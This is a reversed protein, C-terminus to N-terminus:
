GVEVIYIEGNTYTGSTGTFKYVKGVNDSTLVAEMGADTSIEIPTSDMYTGTVGFISTGSKINGAVLNPDGKITQNGSLYQGSAITQDSTRPTYTQASKRTVGSGVYTNSIAGVSVNNLVYGSDPTVNQVTETPTVSKSQEPKKVEISDILSSYEDLKKTDSVTIGKNEISSKISAKANNLRTIESSISM